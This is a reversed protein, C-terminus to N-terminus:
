ILINNHKWRNTLPLNEEIFWLIFACSYSWALIIHNLFFFDLHASLCKLGELDIVNADDPADSFDKPIQIEETCFILILANYFM